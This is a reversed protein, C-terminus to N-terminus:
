RIRLVVHLSRLWVNRAAMENAFKSGGGGTQARRVEKSGWGPVVNAEAHHQLAARRGLQLLLGFRNGGGAEVRHLQREEETGGGLVEL